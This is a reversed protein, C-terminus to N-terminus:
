PAAGAGHVLGPRVAPPDRRRGSHEGPSDAGHDPGPRGPQQQVAEPVARPRLGGGFDRRGPRARGPRLATASAVALKFANYSKYNLRRCFRSVTAEAVGCAEALDSISMFQTDRQFAIVYDAVKKEATTLQYYQASIKNFVNTNDLSM